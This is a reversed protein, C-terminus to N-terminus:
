SVLSEDVLGDVLRLLCDQRLYLVAHVPSLHMQQGLGDDYIVEYFHACKFAIGLNDLLFPKASNEERM